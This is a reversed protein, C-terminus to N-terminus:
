IHILSLTWVVLVHIPEVRFLLWGGVVLAIVNCGIIASRWDKLRDAASGIVINFLVIAFPPAALIVGSMSASIGISEFWIAVFPMVSGIALFFIAYYTAVRTEETLASTQRGFM